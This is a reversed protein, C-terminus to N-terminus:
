LFFKTTLIDSPLLLTTNLPLEEAEEISAGKELVRGGPGPPDDDSFPPLLLFIFPSKSFGVLLYFDRM